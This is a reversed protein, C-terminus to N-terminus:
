PCMPQEVTVPSLKLEQLCITVPAIGPWNPNTASFTTGMIGIQRAEAETLPDAMSGGVGAKVCVYARYPINGTATGTVTKTACNYSIGSFNTLIGLRLWKKLVFLIVLVGLLTACSAALNLYLQVSADM